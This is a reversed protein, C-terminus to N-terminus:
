RGNNYFWRAAVATKRERCMINKGFRALYESEVYIIGIDRIQAVIDMICANMPMHSPLIEEGV